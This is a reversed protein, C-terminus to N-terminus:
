RKLDWSLADIKQSLGTIIKERRKINYIRGAGIMGFGGALCLLPLEAGPFYLSGAISAFNGGLALLAERISTEQAGLLMRCYHALDDGVRRREEASLFDIEPMQELHSLLERRYRM